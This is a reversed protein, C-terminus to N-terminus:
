LQDHQTSTTAESTAAADADSSPTHTLRFPQQSRRKFVTTTCQADLLLEIASHIQDVCANIRQEDDPSNFEQQLLDQWAAVAQQLQRPTIAGAPRRAFREPARRELWWVSARWYKGDKTANLINQMHQLEALAESRRAKNAFQPDEAIARGIDVVSCEIIGAATERDSGASLINCIRVKQDESLPPSSDRKM